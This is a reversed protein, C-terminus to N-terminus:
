DDYYDESRKLLAGLVKSAAVMLACSFFGFTAGFAFYGDIGFYGKVPIFLQALVTIALILSFAIWLKRITAPRTLWHESDNM